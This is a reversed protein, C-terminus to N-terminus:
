ACYQQTRVGFTAVFHGCNRTDFTHCEGLIVGAVPERTEVLFRPSAMGVGTIRDADSISPPALAELEGGRVLVFSRGLGTVDILRERGMSPLFREERELRGLGFFLSAVM